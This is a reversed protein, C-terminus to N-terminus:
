TESDLEEEIFNKRQSNYLEAFLGKQAILSEFTGKEIVTGSDIVIIDSCSKVSGMRHTVILSIKGKGQMLISEIFENEAIPDIASTPEDFFIIDSKKIFSRLAALRQRQGGSFEKGGYQMGLVLSYNNELKKEFDKGLYKVKEIKAKEEEECHRPKVFINEDVTYGAYVAFDQFVASLRERYSDMDLDCLNYKGNIIISGEQPTYFGTLLKILTTKGSGNKGVVAYTKKGDIFLSLDKIAYDSIDNGDKDFEKGRYAFRINKLEISEIKENLIIRESKEIGQHKESWDMIDFYNQFYGMITFYWRGYMALDQIEYQTYMFAQVYGAVAGVAIRKKVVIFIMLFFLAIMILASVLSTILQFVLGRHAIKIFNKLYEDKISLYTNKFNKTFGFLFNDKAKEGELGHKIYTAMKLRKDQLKETEAWQLRGAKQSILFVPLTSFIMLLPLSYDISFLVAFMSILNVIRQFNLIINFVYNQPRVQLQERVMDVKVLNERKEFFSLDTLSALKESLGTMISASFKEYILANLTAQLKVALESALTIVAWATLLKFTEGFAIEASSQLFSAILDILKMSIFIRLSPFVGLALTLVIVASVRFPSAKFFLKFTRIFPYKTM